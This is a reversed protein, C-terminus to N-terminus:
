LNQIILNSAEKGTQSGIAVGMGGMRVACFINQKIQQILPSKQKGLGMIGSWRMEIKFLTDPLIMTHLLNELHSQVTDTLGFEVTYENQFDLNRGGGILIRNGVNRFYYYGSDYHFSGKVKLDKIPETILVQARAAEIDQDPLFKKSFGNTCILLKQTRIIEASSPSISDDSLQIDVHKDNEIIETVNAGNLVEIGIAKCKELLTKMMAGTDIQGEGSNLILNEVNEFGNEKIKSNSITYINKIGAIEQLQSNLFSLKDACKEFILQDAPTFIEHGGFPEYSIAQDGLINRMLLLGRWRKEVLSFVDSESQHSLDSLLESPSGFCAFGANRTSAGYPLMGRELILIHLNPKSQKLFFASFLGVIGSGIIAVDPSKIFTNKEWYSFPM